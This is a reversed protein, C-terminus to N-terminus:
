RKFHMFFQFHNERCEKERFCFVKAFITNHLKNILLFFNSIIISSINLFFNYNIMFKLFIKRFKLKYM